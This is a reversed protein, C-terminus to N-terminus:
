RAVNTEIKKEDVGTEFERILTSVDTTLAENNMFDDLDGAAQEARPNHVAAYCAKRVELFTREWIVNPEFSEIVTATHEGLTKGDLHMGISLLRVTREAEGNWVCLPKRLSDYLSHAVVKSDDSNAVTEALTLSRKILEQDPWPDERAAQFFRELSEAAEKARGQKWYLQARIAEADSPRVIALKEIYNVAAANGEAALCEAVLALQPLSKPEERQARWFRLAGPLDGKMYCVVADARNQLDTPLGKRTQPPQNASLAVRAEEVGTWDVEGQIKPRDCHAAHTAAQLSAIQFGNPASVSRAFAFEIVTRDDTNLPWAELSQLVRTAATNGVYHSLFDELGNARWAALLGSKLPEAALRRRLEGADYRVPERSAVLLLDGQQTQWSEINAFVSGLTRYFIEITRDDIDYTQVWQLFIGGPKLRNEVSQYFERTFLGAVGARYPNSPESVILDYRERITLLLERGDGIVVHLRPNALASQNVPACIEAVKSIARELEVVDVRQITPVAALWGATSGTGLGVVMAKEPNPHLAAGILGSMIQTGADSRTNGDSKGNVIFSVSEANQLGVSSEVGDVDWMIHRRISQLVDRMENRSGHYVKLRGVGIQGHRWFSTPGVAMLMVLALAATSLPVAIRIWRRPESSPFCAAVVALGSLLVVVMKWVGPATFMPIFGFGGALSGILAGITNWAYAAGTQSGVRTRGKGLLAILLPFQLGSVFAAPFVVIFCLSAWAIIHGQFGLTGLPRLLMAAIAIRDGLAYPVAIFFAEAACTLAFLRLSASRKLDFFAYAVGGMGIGLLAVALILGFSFTSGGLLPGLMRYWVIEMLFFAFGVLGAACFVFIPSATAGSDEQDLDGPTESVPKLDGISKSLHLASLAVLGNVAAAWWLTLHNGFNEFLYFTGLATGTVAGLTNVGYLIGVSRRSVDDRTVVARAAAPLTGGMLFTPVGLVLAALILRVITALTMGMAETGGLTIYFNRAVFILLPSLAASIAILLELQAYFRLPRMKSESRRGLIIGGFGLGSMFVGLVAATAATSAGFVLRFERLWTTQYILACFGSGFLLLAVLRTRLPM